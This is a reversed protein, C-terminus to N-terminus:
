SKGTTRIKVTGDRAPAAAAAAAKHCLCVAYPFHCLCIAFPWRGVAYPLLYLLPLKLKLKLKKEKIKKEKEKKQISLIL